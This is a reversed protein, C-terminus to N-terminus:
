PASASTVPTALRALANLYGHGPAGTRALDALDVATAYTLTAATPLVATSRPLQRALISGYTSELPCPPVLLVGNLIDYGPSGSHPNRYSMLWLCGHIPDQGQLTTSTLLVTACPPPEPSDTQEPVQTLTDPALPAIEDPLLARVAACRTRLQNVADDGWGPVADLLDTTNLPIGHTRNGKLILGTTPGTTIVRGQVALLQPTNFFNNTSHVLVTAKGGADLANLDSITAPPRDVAAFHLPYLTRVANVVAARAPSSRTRVFVGDSPSDEVSTLLVDPQYPM